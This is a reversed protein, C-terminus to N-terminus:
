VLYLSRMRAIGADNVGFKAKVLEVPGGFEADIRALTQRMVDPDSGMIVGLVDPPLRSLAQAMEPTLGPTPAGSRM